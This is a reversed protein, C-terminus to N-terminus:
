GAKETKEKKLINGKLPLQKWNRRKAPAPHKFLFM